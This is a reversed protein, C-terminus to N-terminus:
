RPAAIKTYATTVRPWHRLNQHGDLSAQEHRYAPGRHANARCVCLYNNTDPRGRRDDNLTRSARQMRTPYPYGSKIAPVPSPIEPNGSTPCRWGPGACDPYGASPNRATTAPDVDLSIPALRLVRLFDLRSGGASAPM